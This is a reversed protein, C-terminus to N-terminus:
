VTVRRTGVLAVQYTKSIPPWELQIGVRKMTETVNVGCAEPCMVIILERHDRHFREIESKLERRARGQWYLCCRLQRVSWEPHKHQMEAVHHGLDFVNCICYVPKSLDLLDPLLPADPPCTSRKGWNPCGRPHGEYPRTCLSRVSPDVVPSVIWEKM